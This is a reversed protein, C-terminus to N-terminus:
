RDYNYCTKGCTPCKCSFQVGDRQNSENKYETKEAEFICGCDTCIFRKIRKLRDLDGNRLINM